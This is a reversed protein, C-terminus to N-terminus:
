GQCEWSMEATPNFDVSRLNAVIQWQFTNKLNSDLAHHLFEFQADLSKDTSGSPVDFIDM